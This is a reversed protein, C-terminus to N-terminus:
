LRGERIRQIQSTLANSSEANQIEHKTIIKGTDAFQVVANLNALLTSIDHRKTIFWPDHMKLFAQILKESREQGLDKALRTLQGAARGNIPPTTEYKLKWHECYFSILSPATASPTPLKSAVDTRKTRINRGDTRGYPYKLIQIWELTVLEQIVGPVSKPKVHIESSVGRPSVLAVRSRSTSAECLLWLWLHKAGSSLQLFKSSRALRSECRFWMLVKDKSTPNWEDFKSIQIEYIQSAKAM